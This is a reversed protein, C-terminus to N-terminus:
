DFMAFIGEEADSEADAEVAAQQDGCPQEAPPPGPSPSVVAPGRTVNLLVSQLLWELAPNALWRKQAAHDYRSLEQELRARDPRRLIRAAVSNDLDHMTLNQNDFFHLSRGSESM